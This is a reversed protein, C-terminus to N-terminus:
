TRVAALRRDSRVATGPLKPCRWRAMTKAEIDQESDVGGRNGLVDSVGDGDAELACARRRRRFGLDV